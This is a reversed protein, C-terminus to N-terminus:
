LEPEEEQMVVGIGKNGGRFNGYICQEECISTVYIPVIIFVRGAYYAAKIAASRAYIDQDLKGGLGFGESWFVPAHDSAMMPRLSDLSKAPTHSFESAEECVVEYRHSFM